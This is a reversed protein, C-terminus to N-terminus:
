VYVRHSLIYQVLECKFLLEPWPLGNFVNSMVGIQVVNAMSPWQICRVVNAYFAMSYM